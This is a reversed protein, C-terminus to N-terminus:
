DREIEKLMQVVDATPFSYRAARRVAQLKAEPDAAPRTDWKERLARRVWEGVALRERRALRQIAEM